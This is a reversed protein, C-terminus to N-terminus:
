LQAQVPEMFYSRLKYEGMAHALRGAEAYESTQDPFLQQVKVYQPCRLWAYASSAGLAAHVEPTPM